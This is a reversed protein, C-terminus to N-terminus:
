EDKASGRYLGQRLGRVWEVSDKIYPHDAWMGKAERALADREEDTLGSIDIPTGEPRELIAKVRPSDWVSFPRPSPLALLVRTARLGKGLLQRSIFEESILALEVLTPHSVMDRLHLQEVGHAAVERILPYVLSQLDFLTLREKGPMLNVLFLGEGARQLGLTVSCELEVLLRDATCLNPLSFTVTVEGSRALVVDPKSGQHSLGHWFSRVSTKGPRLVRDFRGDVLLLGLWGEQVRVEKTFWGDLDRETVRVAFEDEALPRM